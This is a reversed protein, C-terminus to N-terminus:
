GDGPVRTPLGFWSGALKEVQLDTLAGQFTWVDDILGPFYEGWTGDTKARGVQFSKTAKFAPTNGAWSARAECGTGDDAGTDEADSCAVEQLIGNVYLRAQRAFGDYVVALHNWDRADYFGNNTVRVVTAGASDKDPVALEWRGPDDPNAADPVFRMTFASQVAGEASVAAVSSQPLAAAQAWATVTYSGSTDVPVSTTAAYGGVGDLELSGFDIFAADSKKAGGNLTLASGGPVDNPTTVPGIGHTEEFMWRSEVLPRRQFMQQVEEASVPRDLLRVDDITGPFYSGMAGSYNSAGIYMSQDAYFAGALQTSGAKVGNVYLTLTDAVSDHVGVLHVWGGAWATVGDAQMARVPTADPADASYQNFAWRDYAASYYLEFGPRDRGAQAAIVAAGTPKKDLKAWASVTFPRSTNVHPGSTQGIKAYGSTGDFRAAKGAVGEVGTTVTGNYKAPLVGGHGTLQTADAADDLSFIAIAPRGPDGVTGKANLTAVENVTLPKDFIQLEDITGPFFSMATGTLNKGGVQLGRRAEWPTSYPVSNVLKGNVYLELLHDTSSYAGVLHTWTGSKVQSTDGQAARVLGGGADDSKYQNFSWGYTTSYYLEFGPANNGPALAVDATTDPIKDLKVWASVAFGGSTNVAPLDTSAYGDTGNFHVATGKVGEVGPTVGGNITLTRAPTSGIAENVAAAEDLQWTAREPQGTKVRYLYTRVESGNGASDFAQATFFNEGSKAPLVKVIKAAGGSTTVKNKPSPDGNIGYWYTTVDNEAAKVEFSGYRGVGDYWPDNPDEPNSAPYEGSTISPAKPVSTDYSFYCATPDGSSSWPSYQAGDHARAQWYIQKNQPVNSPLAITFNSGSKKSPTLAPKWRAIVGKGDGSDWSAQFEVAINDGDPDTVNNASIKGLSRVRAADAPKKCTGGYEMTLQSMKIQPPPRNYQVRLHAKDSFRKWGYGDTESAAQLGFTMTASKNDAATQVASKVNFEADKAACGTYGYAFSKSALQKIWFGSVNQSNWTTSSSIDKTQWLEVSRADCSASWTNHVVFEASLISKGAYTSTPIRYFLRKTDHPNCYSWDCYGLGADSDGNFKWQPSSAWYKSAMTWASAKPTYWQPDIYVPYTTDAGKLVDADPTLVLEDQGATVAVDVPALKGSEAAGPERDGDAQTADTAVRAGGVAALAAAPAAAQDGGSSDWMLPKPAEFVAGAAGKDLAEVGGEDTERVDLGSASLKLRLEALEESGAAKATKVVLLQTFGDEQATMRLDVDPLVSPYTAVAGELRPKPLPAPWTLSLERGARRMRVLPASGGGGSFAMDVTVARPAVAGGGTTVLETDVRKWGGQGRAWIPRLYERAELNGEPTAFVERSEGRQASVEVPKGTRKAEALADAESVGGAAAAEETSRSAAPVDAAAEGGLAPIATVALTVSLLAGVARGGGRLRTWM